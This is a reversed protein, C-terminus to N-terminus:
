EVRRRVAGSKEERSGGQYPSALPKPPAEDPTELWPYKEYIALAFDPSYRSALQAFSHLLPSNILSDLQKLAGPLRNNVTVEGTEKNVGNKLPNFKLSLCDLITETEEDWEVMGVAQLEDLANIVETESLGNDGMIYSIPIRSLGETSRAPAGWVYSVVIKADKNLRRYKRDYVAPSLLHFKAPM